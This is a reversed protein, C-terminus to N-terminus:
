VPVDQLLLLTKELSAERRGPGGREKRHGPSARSPLAFGWNLVERRKPEHFGAELFSESRFANSLGQLSLAPSGHPQPPLVGGWFAGHPCSGTLGPLSAPSLGCLVPGSSGRWTFALTPGPTNIVCGQLPGPRGYIVSNGQCSYFYGCPMPCPSTRPVSSARGLGGGGPGAGGTM